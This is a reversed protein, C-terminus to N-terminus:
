SDNSVCEKEALAELIADFIKSAVKDKEQNYTNIEIIKTSESYDRVQEFFQSYCDNYTDINEKNVFNGTKGKRKISEETPITLVVLLDSKYPMNPNIILEDRSIKQHITIDKKRSSYINWFMRDLLGRDVIIVDVNENIAEILEKAITLIVWIGYHKTDKPLYDYVRGAAESIIKFKINQKELMSRVLEISSTKGAEPTGTFEVILPKQM